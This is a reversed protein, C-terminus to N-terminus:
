KTLSVLIKGHYLNAPLTALRILQKVPYILVGRVAGVIGAQSENNYWPRGRRGERVVQINKECAEMEGAKFNRYVVDAFSFSTRNTFYGNGTRVAKRGIYRM